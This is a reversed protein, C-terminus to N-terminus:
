RPAKQPDAQKEKGLNALLKNLNLTLNAESSSNHQPDQEDFDPGDSFSADKEDDFKPPQFSIVIKQRAALIAAAENEAKLQKQLKENELQTLKKGKRNLQCFSNKFLIEESKQRYHPHNSFYPHMLAEAVSLREAPDSVLCKQLLDWVEDEIKFRPVRELATVGKKNLLYTTNMNERCFLQKGTVLEYLVCAVSYLDSKNDQITCKKQALLRPDTYGVNIYDNLVNNEDGHRSGLSFNIFFVQHNTLDIGTVDPLPAHREFEGKVPMAIQLDVLVINEPNLNRHLVGFRSELEHLAVLMAFALHRCNAADFLPAIPILKLLKEYLVMEYLIYVSHRSEFYRFLTPANKKVVLGMNIENIVQDISRLRSHLFDKSYANM